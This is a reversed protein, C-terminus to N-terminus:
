LISHGFELWESDLPHQPHPTVRRTQEVQDWAGSMPEPRQWLNKPHARSTVRYCTTLVGQDERRHDKLRNPEKIRM